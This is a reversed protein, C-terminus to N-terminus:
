AGPPPLLGFVGFAPLIPVLRSARRVAGLKGKQEPTLLADFGMLYEQHAAAIGERLAKGALVLAGVAGPDPDEGLLLERLQEETARLQERLPAVAEERAEWLAQWEAVQDEDLGLFETIVREARPFDPAGQDGAEMATVALEPEIIRPQLIGDAFAPAVALGGVVLVAILRKM